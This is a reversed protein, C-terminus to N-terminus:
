KVQEELLRKLRAFAEEFAGAQEGRTFDQLQEGLLVIEVRRNLRRGAESENPAIPRTLGLGTATMRSDPVGLARLKDRVTIARRESLDQNFRESGVNDTHGELAIQADTNDRLLQAVRALYSESEAADLTDKGFAFLVSEPLWIMVGRETQAVALTVDGAPRSMTSCGQILTTAFFCAGILLARTLHGRFM